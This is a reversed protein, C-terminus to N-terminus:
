GGCSAPGGPSVYDVHEVGHVVDEADVTATDSGPGGLVLDPHGDAAYFCDRGNGGM